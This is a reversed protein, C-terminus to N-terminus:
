RVELPAEVQGVRVSAVRVHAAGRGRVVWSVRRRVADSASRAFAPTMPRAFGGWGDLQGITQVADGGALALGAGLDLRARLPEVFPLAKASALFHTPLYGLNEIVATVRALEGGLPEVRVDAVRVRPALAALRLFFRVMADEVEGLKEPPPNWIGFRPDYGGIEVRGLQPHEFPEYAAIVRGANQDRDWKAIAEVDARTRRQYNDIFPRHVKVGARKWFDWLECVLGIAGRQGYAFATLDGALPKDPEYLFEEYGSVMPYGTFATSWEELQRYLALDSPEMKADPKDGAPRIFTGGFTHLNLWAFLNPHAVAFEAVARSEPESLPLRGAGKQQPEPAWQFPFNRNLDTSNDTLYDAGNPVNFGDWNEIFGEPYVAYYPGEDEIRRPLMLGPHERSAVFEGAPDEVRILRASGDGDVDAARWFPQSRGRRDDRPNSRVYAGVSLMREAGDPSLRPAVFTLGDERIRALVEGPLDLVDEGGHVRILADAIALAVSSGALEPAHMNGDVWSAPRARDPDRGISLLWVERGEVSRALSELRVVDPHAEAWGRVLRTLEDYSLYRDRILGPTSM